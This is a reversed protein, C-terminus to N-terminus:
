CSYYFKEIKYESDFIKQQEILECYFKKTQNDQSENLKSLFYSENVKRM